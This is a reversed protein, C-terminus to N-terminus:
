RANGQSDTPCAHTLQRVAIQCRRPHIVAYRSPGDAFPARRRRLAGRRVDPSTLLGTQLAVAFPKPIRSRGPGGNVLQLEPRVFAPAGEGAPRSATAPVVM